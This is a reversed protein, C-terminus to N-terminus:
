RHKNVVMNGRPNPCEVLRTPYIQGPNINTNLEEMTTDHIKENELLQVLTNAFGLAASTNVGKSNFRPNRIFAFYSRYILAYADLLFLKREAKDTNDTM